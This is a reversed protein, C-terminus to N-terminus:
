KKMHFYILKVSIMFSCGIVHSVVFIGILMMVPVMFIFYLISIYYWAEPQQICTMIFLFLLILLAVKISSFHSEVHNDLWALFDGDTMSRQLSFCRLLTLQEKFTFLDTICKRIKKDNGIYVKIGNTNLPPYAKNESKPAFFIRNNICFLFLKLGFIYRCGIIRAKNLIALFSVVLYILVSYYGLLNFLQSKPSLFFHCVAIIIFFVTVTKVSDLFEYALGKLWNTFNDRTEHKVLAFSKLMIIQETYTFLRIISKRIEKDDTFRM